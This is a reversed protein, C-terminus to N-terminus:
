DASSGRLWLLAVSIVAHLFAAPWLLIGHFSTALGLWALLVTMAVNFVILGDVVSSKSAGLPSSRSAIGLGILGVGAFRAWPMGIGEAPAGFLLQSVGDPVVLLAVGVLIELWAAIRVIYKRPM